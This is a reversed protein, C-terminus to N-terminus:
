LQHLFKQDHRYASHENDGAPPPLVVVYTLRCNPTSIFRLNLGGGGSLKFHEVMRGGGAPSM